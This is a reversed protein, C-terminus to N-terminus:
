HLCIIGLYVYTCHVEKEVAFVIAQLRPLLVEPNHQALRRVGGIGEVKASWDDAEMQGLCERLGAEPSSFPHFEQPSSEPSGNQSIDMNPVEEYLEAHHKLPPSLKKPKSRKRTSEPPASTSPESSDTSPPLPPKKSSAAYGASQSKAAQDVSRTQKRENGVVMDIIDTAQGNTKIEGVSEKSSKKKGQTRKCVDSNYYSEDLSMVKSGEALLRERDRQSHSSKFSKLPTGLKKAAYNATYTKETTGYNYTRNLNITPSKIDGSPWHSPGAFTTNLGTPHSHQSRPKSHKPKTASFSSHIHSIMHILNLVACTNGHM